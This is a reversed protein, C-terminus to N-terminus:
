KSFLESVDCVAGVDVSDQAVLKNDQMIYETRKAMSPSDWSQIWPRSIKIVRFKPQFVFQLKQLACEAGQTTRFGDPTIDRWAGGGRGLEIKYEDWAHATGNENHTRTIRDIIKDDNIDVSFVEITAIGAGTEDLPNQTTDNARGLGDTFEGSINNRVAVQPSATGHARTEPQSNKIWLLYGLGVILGLMIVLLVNLVVSGRESNM